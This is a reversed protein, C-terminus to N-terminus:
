LPLFVRRHWNAVIVPRIEIAWIEIEEICETGQFVHTILQFEWFYPEMSGILDYGTGVDAM